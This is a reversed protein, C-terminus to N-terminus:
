VGRGPLRRRQSDLIDDVTIVSTIPTTVGTTRPLKNHFRSAVVWDGITVSGGPLLDQYASVVAARYTADIRNPTILNAQSIGPIYNRGRNSRGTLGTRFSVCYSVNNSLPTGGVGGHLTTGPAVIAQAGSDVSQDVSQIFDVVVTTHVIPAWSLTAWGLFQAALSGLSTADWGGSKHWYTTNIVEQGDWHAVLRVLACDPIPIFAM